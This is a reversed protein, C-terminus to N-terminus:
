KLYFNYYVSNNKVKFNCFELLRIDQDSMPDIISLINFGLGYVFDEYDPHDETFYKSLIERGRQLNRLSDKSFSRYGYFHAAVHDDDLACGFIEVDLNHEESFKDAFKIACDESSFIKLPQVCFKPCSVVYLLNSM